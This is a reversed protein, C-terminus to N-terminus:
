ILIVTINVYRSQRKEGYIEQTFLFTLDSVGEFSDKGFTHITENFSGSPLQRKMNM